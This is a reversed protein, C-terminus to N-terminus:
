KRSKREKLFNDLIHNIQKALSRHETFALEKLEAHTKTSILLAIQQQTENAM